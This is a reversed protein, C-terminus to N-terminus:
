REGLLSDPDSPCFQATYIPNGQFNPALTQWNSNAGGTGDLQHKSLDLKGYVTSMEIFPMVEVTFTKWVTNPTASGENRRSSGSPRDKQMLM